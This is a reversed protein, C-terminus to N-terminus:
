GYLARGAVSVFVAANSSGMRWCPPGPPPRPLAHAWAKAPAGIRLLQQGVSAAAHACASVQQSELALSGGNHQPMRLGVGAM